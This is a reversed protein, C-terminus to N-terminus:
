MVLTLTEASLHFERMLVQEAVVVMMYLMWCFDSVVTGVRWTPWCDM